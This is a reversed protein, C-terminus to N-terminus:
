LVMKVGAISKLARDLIKMSELSYITIEVDFSLYKGTESASSKKLPNHVGHNKLTEIILIDIGHLNETIIKYHCDVPFKIQSEDFPNPM